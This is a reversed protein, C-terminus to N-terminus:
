EECYRKPPFEFSSIHEIGTIRSKLVANSVRNPTEEDGETVVAQSENVDQAMEFIDVTDAKQEEVAPTISDKDQVHKGNVFYGTQYEKGQIIDAEPYDRLYGPNNGTTFFLITSGLWLSFYYALYTIDLTPSCNRVSRLLLKDSNTITCQWLLSALATPLLIFDGQQCQPSGSM